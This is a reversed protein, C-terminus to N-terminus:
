NSSRLWSLSGKLPWSLASEHKLCSRGRRCCYISKWITTRTPPCSAPWSIHTDSLHHIQSQLLWSSLVPSKNWPKTLYLCLQHRQQQASWQWTTEYHKPLWLLWLDGPSIGPSGEWLCCHTWVSSHGQGRCKREARSFEQTPERFITKGIAHFVASTKLWLGWLIGRSYTLDPFLPIIDKPCSKKM